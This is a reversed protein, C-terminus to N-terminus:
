RRPSILGKKSACRGCCPSSRIPRAGTPMGSLGVRPLRVRGAFTGCPMRWNLAHSPEARLASDAVTLAEDFPLARACEIVTRLATTVGNEVETAELEAWHPRIGHRQTTRVKRGRRVTVWAEAPVTKVKWGHHAAASLHSLTASHSQATALHQATSPLM